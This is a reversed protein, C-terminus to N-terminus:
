LHDHAMGAAAQAASKSFSADPTGKFCRIIWPYANTVYYGYQGNVTMGNCEDLDGADTWEWDQVYFGDYDGGPGSPRQGQKLTYGSLAERLTGLDPDLFYTGYIPFGDAAFGIVPSGNPGPNTDFMANPSGHYHYSGDPQAHGNHTDEGFFGSGAPDILWESTDPCGAATNAGRADDWCGASVIDIVVGNLMIGNIRGQSVYTVNSAFTTPLRAVTLDKTVEAVANPQNTAGDNFDHNPINNSEITCADAGATVTTLGEFGVSRNVDLVESSYSEDYIACDASIEEFIANTIDIAITGAGGGGTGSGGGSGGGSGRGGCGSIALGLAAVLFFRKRVNMNSRADFDPVSGTIRTVM